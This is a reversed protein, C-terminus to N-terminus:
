RRTPTALESENTSPLRSLPTQAASSNETLVQSEDESLRRKSQKTAKNKNLRILASNEPLARSIEPPLNQKPTSPATDGLPSRMQSPKSSNSPLTSDHPQSTSQELQPSVALADKLRSPWSSLLDGSLSLVSSSSRKTQTESRRSSIDESNKEPASLLQESERPTKPESDKLNLESDEVLKRKSPTPSSNKPTSCDM